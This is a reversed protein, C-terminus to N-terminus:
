DLQVAHKTIDISCAHHKSCYDQCKEAMAKDRYALGCEECFYYKKEDRVIEKVM